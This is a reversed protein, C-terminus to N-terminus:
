GEPRYCGEGAALGDCTRLLRALEAKLTGADAHPASRALRPMPCNAQINERGM